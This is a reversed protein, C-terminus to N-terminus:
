LMDDSLDTDSLSGVPEYRWPPPQFPEFIYLDSRPENPASRLTITPLGTPPATDPPPLPQPLPQPPPSTHFVRALNDLQRQEKAEAEATMPPVVPERGVSISASSMPTFAALEVTALDKSIETEVHEMFESDLLPLDVRGATDRRQRRFQKSRWVADSALNFIAIAISVFGLYAALMSVIVGADVLHAAHALTAEDESAADDRLTVGTAVLVAALATLASVTVFLGQKIPAVYPRVAISVALTVLAIVVASWLLSPCSIDGYGSLGKTAAVALALALDVAFFWTCGERYKAFFLGTSNILWQGRRFREDSRDDDIPQWTSDGRTWKKAFNCSRTETATADNSTVFRCCRPVRVAFVVTAALGAAFFLTGGVALCLDLVPMQRRAAVYVSATMIGDVLLGLLAVLAGPFRTISSAERWAEAFTKSLSGHLIRMLALMLTAIAALSTFVVLAILGAVLAGRRHDDETSPGNHDSRVTLGPWVSTPFALNERRETEGRLERFRNRECESLELISLARSAQMATGPSSLIGVISTVTQVTAVTAAVAEASV